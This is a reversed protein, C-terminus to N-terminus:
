LEERKKNNHLRSAVTTISEELGALYTEDLSSSNEFEQFVEDLSNPADLLAHAYSDELSNNREMVGLIDGKVSYEFTFNLIEEKEMSLLHAKLEDYESTMKATIAAKLTKNM